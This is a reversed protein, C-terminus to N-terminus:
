QGKTQHIMAINNRTQAIGRHDSLKKKIEISQTYKELAEDYEGKDQHIIAINNHVM